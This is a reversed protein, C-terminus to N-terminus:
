QPNFSSVPQNEQQNLENLASQHMRAAEEYNSDTEGGHTSAEYSYLKSNKCFSLNFIIFRFSNSKDSASAQRHGHGNQQYPKKTAPPSSPTNFSHTSHASAPAIFVKFPSGSIPADDLLLSITYLGPEDTSYEARCVGDKFLLIVKSQM